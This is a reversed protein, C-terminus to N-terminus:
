WFQWAGKWAVWIGLLFNTLAHATMADGLRKKRIVLAQYIVGCLIGPLWQYHSFGFILSTVLLSRWHLQGMPVSSYDSRVLYRYLFSRYFAEEIPPVVLASGLTRVTTFFGGATSHEGFQHFPNWPSGAKVLFEFKPYYADLGVWLVFVLVGALAAEWSFAWRVEPLVARMEWICWLGVLMKLLYMWYRLSGGSSDQAVTLALIIIYPLVRARTPSARLQASLFNM